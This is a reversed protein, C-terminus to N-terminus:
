YGTSFWDFTRAVDAGASNRFQISFGTESKATLTYFDGLAMGQGTIAIAPVTFYPKAFVVALTGSTYAANIGTETRDPMDVTLTMAEVYINQDTASSFLRLEFDFARGHIDASVPFWQFPGWDGAISPDSPTSRVWLQVATSNEVAGDLSTWEDVTITHETILGADIIGNRSDVTSGTSYASTPVDFYIRCLYNDGLDLRPIAYSGSPVVAGSVNDLTLFTGDVVVNTKYGAWAPDDTHTAVINQSMLTAMSSQITAANLSYHGTSDIWKALYTGAILSLNVSTSNGPETRVMFSGDWTAGTLSPSHRIEMSGGYVVDIDTAADWVLLGQNPGSVSLGLGTVDVPLALKGIVTYTQYVWAGVPLGLQNIPTVAVLYTAGSVVSYWSVLDPSTRRSDLWTRGNDASIQAKLGTANVLDFSMDLRVYVVGDTGHEMTESMVVNTVSPINGVVNATPVTPTDTDVGYLSANYEILSLTALQEGNRRIDTVLFEKVVKGVEGIAWVDFQAPTAPFVSSVTIASVTGAATTIRRTVITDDSMRLVVDYVLGNTLVISKDLVLTTTTGSVIRGGEGWQTVDDQVWVLDGVTCAIADIDAGIEATRRLLENRKLRFMAERWAQTPRRIGRNSFQVRQASSEVVGTNVITIKDRAHGQTSDMFDVEIACARDVMPLFTEQFSATTTNGASFVQAPLSRVHDYVVTVSTGRMLLTARASAAVELASEWVSSQTDYIADYTCRPETGGVVPVAEDCWQAWAYFDALVLRSPDFGDYRVVAHANNFVPQTLIDWAVWAPNRSFETAWASGNWVRILACDGLCEFQIGGSLQDTALAEVAALVTRPYQFDDYLIETIGSFYMDDGYRSGTIDVSLNTVRVKYAIGRTLNDVRWLKKIPQQAAGSQTVVEVKTTWVSSGDETWKWIDNGIVEGETHDARATSGVATQIWSVTAGEWNGGSWAGRSWYGGGYTKVEDAARVAIARWTAGADDSIEVSYDVSITSLGGQDNAYYLGSPFTILVELADYDSGTTVRTIPGSTPVLADYKTVKAPTFAPTLATENFAPIIDQDLEGMRTTVTVGAYASLDQGNIKFDTLLSYPGMGLDILMHAVQEKGTDGKNEIYGAIVNGHLKVKGYARAIVGGPEQTTVPQWGYSPSSDYGGSGGLDSPLNPKDPATLAGILASGVLGIGAQLGMIMLGADAAVFTGGLGVYLEAALYPAYVMLAISLVMGFIGDDGGRVVPMAIMQDGPIIQRTAWEPQPVISGNISVVLEVGDGCGAPLYEGVLSEVTRAVPSTVLQEDRERREFPNRIIVLRVPDLVTQERM